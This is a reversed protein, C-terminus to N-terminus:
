LIRSSATFGSKALKLFNNVTKPSDAGYFEIEIDGLNTKLIAAKYTKNLDAEQGIGSAEEDNKQQMNSTPKEDSLVPEIGYNERQVTQNPADIQSSCGSILLLVAPIIILKKM